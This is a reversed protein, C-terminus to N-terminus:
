RTSGLEAVARPMEWAAGELRVEQGEHLFPVGATVLREGAKLGATVFAEDGVVAGLEVTRLSLRGGEHKGEFVFVEARRPTRTLNVERDLALASLPLAIGREVETVPLDILVEVAMGSRLDPRTADLTVIVPFASVTAARRAIETVTAPLPEPAGDTPRVLVGQGLTLTSAVDYSVLVTAQLGDDEYLTVIPQGPQVSGFAQVEITNVVGDFPARLTTDALTEGLIDLARRSQEVRAEAQRAATVARDRAAESAVARSFLQEQRDAEERANAAAIEAESLAAEAQQLRLNADAAEVTALEEGRVVDQGVRLDLPGLRGGVDFALPTIEPPQLASPFARTRVPVGAEVVMTRVARVPDVIEVVEEPQCASLFVGVLAIAFLSRM